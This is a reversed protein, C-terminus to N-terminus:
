SSLLVEWSTGTSNISRRSVLTLLICSTICCSPPHPHPCSIKFTTTSRILFLHNSALILKLCLSGSLWLDTTLSMSLHLSKSFKWVWTIDDDPILGSHSIFPSSLPNHCCEPCVSFLLSDSVLIAAQQWTTTHYGNLPLLCVLQADWEPFTCHSDKHSHLASM